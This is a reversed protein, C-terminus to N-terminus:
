WKRPLGKHPSLLVKVPNPSRLFPLFSFRNQPMNSDLVGILATIKLRDIPAPFLTTIPNDYRGALARIKLSKLLGLISELSGIGGPHKAQRAPVVVRNM